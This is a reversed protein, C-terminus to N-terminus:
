GGNTEGPTTYSALTAGSIATGNKRWQYRLPSTRAIVSFTATQGAFITRNVPQNTISPGGALNHGRARSFQQFRKRGFQQSRRQIARRQRFRNGRCHHLQAFNSWHHRLRKQGM